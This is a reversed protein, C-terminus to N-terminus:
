TPISPFVRLMANAGEAVRGTADLIQTPNDSPTWKVLMVFKNLTVTGATETYMRVGVTPKGASPGEPIAYYSAFFPIVNRDNVDLPRVYTDFWGDYWTTPTFLGVNSQGVVPSVYIRSPPASHQAMVMGSIEVIGPGPIDITGGLQNIIQYSTHTFTLGAGSHNYRFIWSKPSAASLRTARSNRAAIAFLLNGYWRLAETNDVSTFPSGGSNGNNWEPSFSLLGQSAAWSTITPGQHLIVQSLEGSRRISEIVQHVDQAPYLEFAPAVLYYKATSSSGTNHYDIYATASPYAEIVAKIYQSEVESWASPGKYTSDTIVSPTFENWRYSSNRALDVQNYNKRQKTAQSAGWPNQIPLVVLRCKNRLYGLGKHKSSNNTIQNLLCYLGIIGLTESGHLGGGLIITQEYVPPEFVYKWVDYLGSADKGLSSRTIYSSNATRLPEWLTTIIQDATSTYADFVYGPETIRFSPQAPPNWIDLSFAPSAALEAALNAGPLSQGVPLGVAVAQRRALLDAELDPAYTATTGAAIIAGGIRVPQTITVTM